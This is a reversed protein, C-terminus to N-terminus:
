LILTEPFNILTKLCTENISFNNLVVKCFSTLIMSKKVFHLDLVFKLKSNYANFFDLNAYAKSFM